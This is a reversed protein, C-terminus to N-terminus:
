NESPVEIYMDGRGIAKFTRKDAATIPQSEELSVYNIFRSRYGSMHRSAGSDFINVDVLTDGLGTKGITNAEFTTTYAENGLYVNDAPLKRSCELNDDDNDCDSDDSVSTLDPITSGNDSDFNSAAYGGVDEEDDSDAVARLNPM